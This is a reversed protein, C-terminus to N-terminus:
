SKGESYRYSSQLYPSSVVEELRSPHDLLTSQVQGPEM